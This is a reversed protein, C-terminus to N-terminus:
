AAAAFQDREHRKARRRARRRRPARAPKRYGCHACVRADTRILRRCDPCRRYLGFTAVRYAFRAAIRATRVGRLFLKAGVWAGAVGALGAVVAACVLVVRRRGNRAPGPGNVSWRATFSRSAM